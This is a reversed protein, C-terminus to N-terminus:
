PTEEPTPAPSPDAGTGTTPSTSPTPGAASPACGALLVAALALPVLLSLRRM